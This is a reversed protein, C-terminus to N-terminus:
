GRTIHARVVDKAASATKSQWTLNIDKFASAPTGAKAKVRIELTIQAGSALTRNFTGATVQGTVDTTGVFFWVRFNTLRCFSPTSLSVNRAKEVIVPELCM